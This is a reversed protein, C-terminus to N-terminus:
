CIPILLFMFSERYTFVQNLDEALTDRSIFIANNLSNKIDMVSFLLYM